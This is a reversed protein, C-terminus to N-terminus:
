NSRSAAMSGPANLHAGDNVGVGHREVLEGGFWASVLALCMGAGSLVIPAVSIQSVGGVYRMIWSGIFLAVVGSNALLHYIGTTKARTGSPIALFDILGPIAAAVGGILGASIMYFAMEAWKGAGTGLAIGDFIMSMTLLGLPFVVLMPHIAHGLIKAKSQM